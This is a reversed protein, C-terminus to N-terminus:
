PYLKNFTQHINEKRKQRLTTQKPHDPYYTKYCKLSKTKPKNFHSHLIEVKSSILLLMRVFTSYNQLEIRKYLTSGTHKVFIKNDYAIKHSSLYKCNTQTDKNIWQFGTNALFTPSCIQPQLFKYELKNNRVLAEQTM